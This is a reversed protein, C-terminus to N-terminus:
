PTTKAAISFVDGMNKEPGATNKMKTSDNVTWQGTTRNLTFTCDQWTTSKLKATKSSIDTVGDATATKADADITITVADDKEDDAVAAEVDDKLQSVSQMDSSQRSKEVYRIFQPALIGVLVAMIAIVVILEVLSFGKNNKQKKGLKKFVNKVM